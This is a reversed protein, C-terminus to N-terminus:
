EDENFFTDIIAHQAYNLVHIPSTPTRRDNKPTRKVLTHISPLANHDILLLSFHNMPSLFCTLVTFTSFSVCIVNHLNNKGRLALFCKHRM